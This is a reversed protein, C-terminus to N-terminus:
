SASTSRTWASARRWRCHSRCVNDAYAAYPGADLGKSLALAERPSALFRLRLGPHRVELGRLGYDRARLYLRRARDRESWAREMDEQELLDAPLQVFGYAYQTFGSSATTLLGVHEPSKVLLSEVLKLSFPLAAGVLEPDDDTAYTGAGGSLADGVKDIAFREVSCGAASAAIVLWLARSAWDRVTM